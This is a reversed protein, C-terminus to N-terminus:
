FFVLDAKLQNSSVADFLWLIHACSCRVVSDASSWMPLLATQDKTSIVLYIGRQRLEFPLSCMCNRHKPRRNLCLKSFSKHYNLFFLVVQGVAVQMTLAFSPGTLPKWIYKRREPKQSPVSPLVWLQLAANEHNVNVVMVMISQNLLQNRLAKGKTQLCQNMGTDGLGGERCYYMNQEM